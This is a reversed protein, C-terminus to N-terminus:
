DSSFGHSAEPGKGPRIIRFRYIIGWYLPYAMFFNTAAGHIVPAASLGRRSRELGMELSYQMASILQARHNYAAGKPNGTTGSTYIISAIDEETPDATLPSSTPQSSVAASYDIVDEPLSNKGDVCLRLFFGASPVKDMFEENFVLGKADTSQVLYEINAPTLRFNWLCAVAGLKHIALIAVYIEPCNVMLLGVNDKRGIGLGHLFNALQNVKNDFQKFTLNGTESFIFVKDPYRDVQRYLTSVTTGLM